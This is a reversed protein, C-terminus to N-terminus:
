SGLWTQNSLNKSSSLETELVKKKKAACAAHLLEWALSPIWVVAMDKCSLLPLAPDKVQQAM